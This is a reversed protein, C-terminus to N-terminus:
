PTERALDYLWLLFFIGAFIFFARDDLWRWTAETLIM